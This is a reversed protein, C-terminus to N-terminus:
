VLTELLPSCTPLGLNIFMSSLGGPHHAYWTKFSLIFTVEALGPYPTSPSEDPKGVQRM